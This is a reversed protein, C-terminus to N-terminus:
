RKVEVGLMALRKRVDVVIKLDQEALRFNLRTKTGRLLRAACDWYMAALKPEVFNGLFLHRGKYNIKAHYRKDRNNWSVGIYKTKTDSGPSPQTKKSKGPWQPLVGQARERLDLIPRTPPYEPDLGTHISWTDHTDAGVAHSCIREPDCYPEMDYLVPIEDQGM